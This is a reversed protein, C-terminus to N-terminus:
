LNFESETEHQQANTKQEHDPGRQLLAAAARKM